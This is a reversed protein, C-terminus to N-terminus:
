DLLDDSFNAFSAATFRGTNSDRQIGVMMGQAGVSRTTVPSEPLLHDSGSNSGAGSMPIDHEDSSVDMADSGHNDSVPFIESSTSSTPVADSDPIDIHGPIDDSDTGPNDPLQDDQGSETAMNNHSTAITNNTPPLIIPLRPMLWPRKTILAIQPIFESGYDHYSVPQDVEEQMGIKGAKIAEAKARKTFAEIVPDPEAKVLEERPLGDVDSYTPFESPPLDPISAISSSPNDFWLDTTMPDELNDPDLAGSTTSALLDYGPLSLDYGTHSGRLRDAGRILGLLDDETLDVGWTWKASGLEDASRLFRRVLAKLREVEPRYEEPGEKEKGKGSGSGSHEMLAIDSGSGPGSAGEGECEEESECEKNLAAVHLENFGAARRIAIDREAENAIECGHVMNYLDRAQDMLGLSVARYLRCRTCTNSSSPLPDNVSSHWTYAPKNLENSYDPIHHPVGCDILTAVLEQRYLDLASRLTASCLYFVGATPMKKKTWWPLDFIQASLAPDDLGNSSLNGDLYTILELGPRFRMNPTMGFRYMDQGLSRVIMPINLPQGIAAAV